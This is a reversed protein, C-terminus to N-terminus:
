PQPKSLSRVIVLPQYFGSEPPMMWRPEAFGSTRLAHNLEERLLARYTGAYHQSEWGKTTERTIYIHFTYHRDDTWDWVQHVIRRGSPDRFFAPGHVVPKERILRDYDRISAVLVGGHRLKGRIQNAAQILDSQELLHPLCNDLCVVADFDRGAVPSLDRMDAVRFELTLGRQRAESDARAVAPGSLDCATIRHGRMALGLSQTGIGCGCDLVRLAGSAGCERELLPGIAAAQRAISANWDEFMLHFNAALEDYCM